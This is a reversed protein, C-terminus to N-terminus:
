LESVIPRLRRSSVKTPLRKMRSLGVSASGLLMWLFFSPLVSELFFSPLMAHHGFGLRTYRQAGFISPQRQAAM